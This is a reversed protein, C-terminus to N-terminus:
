FITDRYQKDKRIGAAGTVRTALTASGNGGPRLMPVDQRPRNNNNNHNLQNGMVPRNHCYDFLSETATGLVSRLDCPMPDTWFFDHDLAEDATIRRAPDLRLMRDILDLAHKDEIPPTLIAPLARRHTTPLCLSRYLSLDQCGPMSLPTISGAMKITLSLQHVDSMGPLIARRLWLEPMICGAAWMDISPGYNTAGLLVEPARYWLTVVKTTYAGNNNNNNNSQDILPRALGFDALKLVGHRTILINAAKLDRHMVKNQHIYFLAELLQKMVMKKESLNFHVGSTSLLGALDHECFELVLYISGLGDLGPTTTGTTTPGRCVEILKLVHEHKVLQLIRIERIATQPFGERKNAIIVKKLAVVRGTATERAKHVEGFTGHGIKMVFEYHESVDRCFPFMEATNPTTTTTTSMMTAKAKEM